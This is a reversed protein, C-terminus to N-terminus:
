GPHQQDQERTFMFAVDVLDGLLGSPYVSLSTGSFDSAPLSLAALLRTLLLRKM